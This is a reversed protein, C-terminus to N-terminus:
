GSNSTFTEFATIQCSVYPQQTPQGWSMIAFWVTAHLESLASFSLIASLTHTAWRISVDYCLSRFAVEAKQQPCLECM